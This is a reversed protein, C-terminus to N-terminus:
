HPPLPQVVPSGGSVPPHPHPHAHRPLAPRVPLRLDCGPFNPAELWSALAFFEVASLGGPATRTFTIEQPGTEVAMTLTAGLGASVKKIWPEALGELQRHHSLLLLLQALEPLPKAREGTIEWHYYVLNAMALAAFLEPPLPKSRPTNPFFGGILFDGNQVHDVQIFPALLPLGQFFIQNPSFEIHMSPSLFDPVSEAPQNSRPLRSYIQALASQGNAVPAAAFTQFPIQPLSWIFFQGPMPTIEYPLAWNQKELWPTIGRVATFSVFPEHLANTPVRWPDLPPLPQALSLKGNILFNGSRGTVHIGVRPLDISRLRPYLEGLRPWNVEAALWDAGPALAGNKLASSKLIDNQLYLKDQGCDVVVWDGARAFHVLNPPEHKRLWWGGANDPSIGLGTWAPLLAALNTNWAQARNNDLRIALAFEPSGPADRMEFVWESKLLDDLLPRLQAFGNPAGAALKNGLWAGPVQALKDLTQREVALAEACGFENTFARSDADSSIKQAGAFYVRAILDQAPAAQLMMGVVLGAVLALAVRKFYFIKM